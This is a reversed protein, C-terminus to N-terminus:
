SRGGGQPDLPHLLRGTRYHRGQWAVAAGVAATRPRRPADYAERALEALRGAKEALTDAKDYLYFWDGHDIAQACRSLHGLRERVARGLADRCHELRRASLFGGDAGVERLAPRPVTSRCARGPAPKYGTLPHKALQQRLYAAEWALEDAPFSPRETGLVRRLTIATHMAREALARQYYAEEGATAPYPIDIATLVARLLDIVGLSLPISM